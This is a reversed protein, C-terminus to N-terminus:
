FQSLDRSGISAASCRLILVLFVSVARRFEIFRSDCDKKEMTVTIEMYQHHTCLGAGLRQPGFCRQPSHWHDSCYEEFM